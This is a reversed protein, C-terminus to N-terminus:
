SSLYLGLAPEISLASPPSIKGPFHVFDESGESGGSCDAGASGFQFKVLHFHVLVLVIGPLEPTRNLLFPSFKM